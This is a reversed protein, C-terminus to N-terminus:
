ASALSAPLHFPSRSLDYVVLLDKVGDGLGLDIRCTGGQAEQASIWGWVAACEFRGRVAPCGVQAAAM